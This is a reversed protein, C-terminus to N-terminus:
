SHFLCSIEAGAPNTFVDRNRLGWIMVMELFQAHCGSTAKKIGNGHRKM